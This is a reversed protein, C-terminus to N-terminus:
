ESDESINSADSHSDNSASDSESQAIKSTSEDSNTKSKSFYQRWAPSMHESDESDSYGDLDFLSDDDDDSSDDLM